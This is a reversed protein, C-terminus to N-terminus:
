KLEKQLKEINEKIKENIDIPFVFEELKKIDYENDKFKNEYAMKVVKYNILLRSFLSFNKIADNDINKLDLNNYKYRLEEDEVLGSKKIILKEIKESISIIERIMEHDSENLKVKCGGFKQKRNLLYPLIRLTDPKNSKFIMYLTESVNLYSLLPGYFEFLQEKVIERRKQKKQDRYVYISFLGTITGVLSSALAIIVKTDLSSIQNALETIEPTTAM